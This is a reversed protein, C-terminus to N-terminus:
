PTVKSREAAIERLTNIETRRMHRYRADDFEVGRWIPLAELYAARVLLDDVRKGEAWMKTHYIANLSM